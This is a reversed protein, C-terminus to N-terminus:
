IEVKGQRIIEATGDEILIVTSLSKELAEGSDIILQVPAIEELEWGCEFLTEETYANDWMYEDTIDEMDLMAKSATVSFIPAGLEEVIRIPIPSDPIRVGVEARKVGIKKEINKRPELIFVVPGPTLQKIIKFTDNNVVAVESIQSISSCILTFKSKKSEKLKALADLGKASESSCGIAWSSDTPYAVLGGDQLISAAKKIIRDDPNHAQVYEIM